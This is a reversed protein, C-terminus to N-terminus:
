KESIKSINIKKIKSLDTSPPTKARQLVQTSPDPEISDTKVKM